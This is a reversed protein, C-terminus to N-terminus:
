NHAKLFFVVQTWTRRGYATHKLDNKMDFYKENGKMIQLAIHEAYSSCTFNPKQTYIKESLGMENIAFASKKAICSRCVSLRGDKCHKNIHFEEVPQRRDCKCCIKNM